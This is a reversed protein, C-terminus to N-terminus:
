EIYGDEVRARRRRNEHARRQPKGGVVRARDLEVEGEDAGFFVTPPAAAIGSPPNALMCLIVHRGGVSVEEFWSLAPVAGLPVGGSAYGGPTLSCIPLPPPIGRLLPPTSIIGYPLSPAIGCPPPQSIGRPLPKARPTAEKPDAYGNRRLKRMPTALNLSLDDHREDVRFRDDSVGNFAAACVLAVCVFPGWVATVGVATACVATVGVSSDWVATVDVPTALATDALTAAPIVATPLSAAALAAAASVTVSIAM